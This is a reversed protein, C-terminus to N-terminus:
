FLDGHCVRWQHFFFVNTQFFFFSVLTPLSPIFVPILFIHRLRVRFLILLFLFYRKSLRTTVSHCIIETTHFTVSISMSFIHAAILSLPFFLHIQQVRFHADNLCFFGKSANTSSFFLSLSCKVWLFRFILTTILAYFCFRSAFLHCYLYLSGPLSCWTFLLIAEISASNSSFSLSLVNWEYFVPFWLLFSLMFALRSGSIHCYFYSSFISWKVLLLRSTVTFIFSYFCYRSFLFTTLSFYSFFVWYVSCYRKSFWTM